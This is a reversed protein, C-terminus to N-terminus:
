TANDRPFSGDYACTCTCTRVNHENLNLVIFLKKIQCAYMVPHLSIVQGDADPCKSCGILVVMHLEFESQAIPFSPRSSTIRVGGKSDISEIMM